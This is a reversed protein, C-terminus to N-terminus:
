GDDAVSGAEGRGSLVTSFRGSVGYMVTSCQLANSCGSATAAMLVERLSADVLEVLIPGQLLDLHALEDCNGAAANELKGRFRRSAGGSV